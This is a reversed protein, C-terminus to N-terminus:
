PRNRKRALFVVGLALMSTAVGLYSQQDALLALAMFAVGCRATEYAAQLIALEVNFPPNEVIWDPRGCKQAMWSWHLPNTADHHFDAERASDIDNTVFPGLDPRLQQLRRMLSGDGVCPCWVSGSLEPLNDVLANVQWDATEYFDHERRKAM